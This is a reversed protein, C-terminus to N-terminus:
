PSQRTVIKSPDPPLEMHGRAREIEEAEGQRIIAQAQALDKTERFVKQADAIAKQFVTGDSCGILKFDRLYNNKKSLVQFAEVAQCGFISGDPRQFFWTKRAPEVKNPKVSEGPALEDKEQPLM